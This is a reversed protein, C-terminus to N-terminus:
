RLLERMQMIASKTRERIDMEPDSELCELREVVGLKRLEYARSKCHLKDSQDDTWTLNIVLWTCSSRVGQNEHNFLPVILKLLDSQSILLQRHRPQGAAIHVIILMVAVIIETPPAIHKVGNASRRDRNFADVVRPRLRSALIDFFKDQGMERFLYDIMEPAGPGCIVNRILELGQEQVAIDERRAQAANEVEEDHMMALRHRDVALSHKKPELVRRQGLRGEPKSLAGISDIMNVEDEDDEDEAHSSPASDVEVANLLDVQEGAANPTSMAIPTGAGGVEMGIGRYGSSHAAADEMDNCILHKLWGPGLEELCKVKLDNPASYVMHKLAWVSNKRMEANM